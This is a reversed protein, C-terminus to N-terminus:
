FAFERDRVAAEFPQWEAESATLKPGDPVNSNRLVYGGHILDAQICQGSQWEAVSFTLRPGDPDISNRIVYNGDIRAVQICNGSECRSSQRWEVKRKNDM